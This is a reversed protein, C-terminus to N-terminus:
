DCELVCCLVSIEKNSIETWLLHLHPATVLVKNLKAPVNEEHRGVEALSVAAVKRRRGEVCVVADSCGTKRVVSHLM